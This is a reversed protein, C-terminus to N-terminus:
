GRCGGHCIPYSSINFNNDQMHVIKGELEQGVQLLLIIKDQGINNHVISSCTTSPPRRVLLWIIMSAM